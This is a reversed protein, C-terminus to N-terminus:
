RKFNYQPFKEWLRASILIEVLEGFSRNVGGINKTVRKVTRNLKELQEDTKQIRRDTEKMQEANEKILRDTEAGMAKIQEANEKLIAWIEDVSARWEPILYEKDM